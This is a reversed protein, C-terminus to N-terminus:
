WWSATLWWRTWMTVTQWSSVQRLTWDALTEIHLLGCGIVSCTPATLWCTVQPGLREAAGWPGRPSLRSYTENVPQRTPFWTWWPPHRQKHGDTLKLASPTLLSVLECPRGGEFHLFMKKLTHTLTKRSCRKVTLDICGTPDNSRNFTQLSSPFFFFFVKLM